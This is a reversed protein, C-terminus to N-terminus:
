DIFSAARQGASFWLAALCAAYLGPIWCNWRRRGFIQDATLLLVLTSNITLWTFKAMGALALVTLLWPRDRPELKMGDIYFYTIPLLVSFVLFLM